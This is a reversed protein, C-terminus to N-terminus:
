ETIMGLKESVVKWGPDNIRQDNIQKEKWLNYEKVVDGIDSYQIDEKVLRDSLEKYDKFYESLESRFRLLVDFPIVMM